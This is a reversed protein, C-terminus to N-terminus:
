PNLMSHTLIHHEQFDHFSRVTFTIHHCVGIAFDRQFVSCYLCLLLRYYSYLSFSPLLNSHCPSFHSPSIWCLSIFKLFHNYCIFSLFIFSLHRYFYFSFLFALFYLRRDYTMSSIVLSICRSPSLCYCLLSFFINHCILSLFTFSFPVLSVSPSYM